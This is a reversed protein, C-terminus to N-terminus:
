PGTVPETRELRQTGAAGPARVAVLEGADALVVVAHGRPDGGRDPPRGAM